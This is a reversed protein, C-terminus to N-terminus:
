IQLTQLLHYVQLTKCKYNLTLGHSGGGCFAKFVQNKFLNLQFLSKFLWRAKFLMTPKRRKDLSKLLNQAKQNNISSKQGPALMPSLSKTSNSGNQSSVTPNPTRTPRQISDQNFFMGNKPSSVASNCAKAPSKYSPALNTQTRTAVLGPNTHTSVTRPKPSSVTCNQRAPTFRHSREHDSVVRARPSSVMSLLQTSANSGPLTTPPPSNSVEQSISCSRQITLSSGRVPFRFNNRFILLKLMSKKHM